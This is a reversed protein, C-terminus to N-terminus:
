PHITRSRMISRRSAVDHIGEAVKIAAPKVIKRPGFVVDNSGKAETLKLKRPGSGLSPEVVLNPRVSRSGANNKREATDSLIPM